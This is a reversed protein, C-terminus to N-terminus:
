LAQVDLTKPDMRNIEGCSCLALPDAPGFKIYYPAGAPGPRGRVPANGRAYRERASADRILYAPDDGAAPVLRWEPGWRLVHRYAKGANWRPDVTVRDRRVIPEGCTGCVAYHHPFPSLQAQVTM